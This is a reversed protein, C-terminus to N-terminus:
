LTLLTNFPPLSETVACIAPPLTVALLPTSTSAVELALACINRSPAPRDRVAPTPAAM